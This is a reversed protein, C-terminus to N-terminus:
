RVHGCGVVAGHRRAIGACGRSFEETALCVEFIGGGMGGYKEDIYVGFLDSQAMIKVIDHPFTGNKDFELAVPKIHEQAIQRSIDRIMQQEETLLYDIM